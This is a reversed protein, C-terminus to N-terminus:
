QKLPRLQRLFHGTALWAGLWGLSVTAMLVLACEGWSLGNLVFDSGYSRVLAALTPQLWASCVDVWVLAFVGAALGYWGGLWLFPRRIFDDHAGILHLVDIEERRTQLELRVTNGVVVLAGLGFLLGLMSVLHRGLRLWSALRQRWQADYQVVDVQPLTELMEALAQDSDAEEAHPTISLVAPLPNEGLVDIAQGLKLQERLTALGEDPPHLQVAAISEHEGLTEALARAESLALEPKLFVDIERASQVSGALQQINSLAVTLGLPLVLTLAMAMITLASSWPRKVMATISAGAEHLHQYYWHKFVAVSFRPSATTPSPQNM